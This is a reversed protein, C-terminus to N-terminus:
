ACFIAKPMLGGSIASATDVRGTFDVILKPIVPSLMGVVLWDLLMTVFICSAAASRGRKPVAESTM